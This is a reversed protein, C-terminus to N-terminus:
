NFLHYYNEVAEEIACSICSMIDHFRENDVSISNVCADNKADESTLMMLNHVVDQVKLLQNFKTATLNVKM